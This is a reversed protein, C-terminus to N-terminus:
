GQHTYHAHHFAGVQDAVNFGDPPHQIPHAARMMNECMRITRPMNHHRMGLLIQPNPKDGRDALLRSNLLNM